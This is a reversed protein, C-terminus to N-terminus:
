SAATFLSRLGDWGLFLSEHLNTWALGYQKMSTPMLLHDGEGVGGWGLYISQSKTKNVLIKQGVAAVQKGPPKKLWSDKGPSPSISSSSLIPGVVHPPPQQRVCKIGSSQEGPVHLDVLCFELCAILQPPARRRTWTASM